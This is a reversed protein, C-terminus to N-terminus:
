PIWKKKNALDDVLKDLIRVKKTLPNEIESIKIGCISGKIKGAEPNWQAKQFVEAFTLAQDLVDQLDKEEFGTLWKIAQRLDGETKGKRVVKNVYHPYVSAFTMKAIKENQDLNSKM